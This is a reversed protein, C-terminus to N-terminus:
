RAGAVCHGGAISVPLVQPVAPTGSLFAAAARHRPALLAAAAAAAVVPAAAAATAAGAVAPALAAATTGAAAAALGPVPPPLRSTVPLGGIPVGSFPFAAAICAGAALLLAWPAGAAALRSQRGCIEAGKSSSDACCRVPALETGHGQVVFVVQRRPVCGQQECPQRLNRDARRPAAPQGLM